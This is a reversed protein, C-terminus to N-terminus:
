FSVFLGASIMISRINDSSSYVPGVPAIRLRIGAPGYGIDGVLNFGVPFVGKGFERGRAVVEGQYTERGGLFVEIECGGGVFFYKTFYYRFTIPMTLYNLKLIDNSDDDNNLSRHTYVLGMQFTSKADVAVSMLPGVGVGLGGYGGIGTGDATVNVSSYALEGFISFHGKM